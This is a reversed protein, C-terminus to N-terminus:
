IREFFEEGFDEVDDGVVARAAAAAVAPAGVAV